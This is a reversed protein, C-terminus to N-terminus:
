RSKGRLWNGLAARRSARGTRSEARDASKALWLGANIGLYRLPEPEWRPWRHDVWPLTTRDSATGTILDALTRGALNSMAVGDGVYGGAWGLGTARTFAVAPRWDRTVGLAGGWRHSVAVGRLQPFLGLLFAALDAHIRDNVDYADAISSGWHYPAGRGGFALRGDATRQGYIIMTGHDGFTVRTSLGIEDWLEQPLPETAIMHSYLPVLTRRQGKLDRTYGETARVVVEARVTGRDSVVAGPRLERVNTSEVIRVGRREAAAALGHVLRAPHVAASHPAFSAGLLNAAGILARAEDRGLFRVDDEAFGLGRHEAVEDQARAIQLHSRAIAIRGGKRYHCEIGEAAAVRGVEDVADFLATLFRKAEAPGVDRALTATGLPYAAHCWGGNRGSAGFGVHRREIVTVRLGPDLSALYYATWLGTFGGGVVAVDAREDGALPPRTASTPVDDWWLPATAAAGLNM